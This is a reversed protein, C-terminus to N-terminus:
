SVQAASVWEDVFDRRQKRVSLDVLKTAHMDAIELAESIKQSNGKARYAFVRQKANALSEAQELTVIGSYFSSPLAHNEELNMDVVECVRMDGNKLALDAKLSPRKPIPWEPVIRHDMIASADGVAALVNLQRFDNRIDAILTKSGRIRKHDTRKEGVFLGLIEQVKAEYGDACDNQVSFNKREGLSAIGVRSLTRHREADSLDVRGLREYTETIQSFLEPGFDPMIARARTLVRGFRVDVEGDRFVVVGLNVSEARLPNPELRLVAYEYTRAM